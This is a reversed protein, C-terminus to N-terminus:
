KGLVSLVVSQLVRVGADVAVDKLKSDVDPAPGKCYPGVYDVADDVIRIQGSSLKGAERFGALTNLAVAYGQCTSLAGEAASIGKDGNNSCASLSVLLAGTLLLKKFM